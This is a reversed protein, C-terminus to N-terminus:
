KKKAVQMRKEVIPVDQCLAQKLTRGNVAFPILGLSLGCFWSRGMIALGV